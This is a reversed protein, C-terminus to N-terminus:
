LVFEVECRPAYRGRNAKMAPFWQRYEEILDLMQDLPIPRPRSAFEPADPLELEPPNHESPRSTRDM